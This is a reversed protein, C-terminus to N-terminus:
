TASITLTLGPRSLDLEMLQTLQALPTLDSVGENDYLNLKQSSRQM